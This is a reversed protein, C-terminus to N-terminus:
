AARASKYRRVADRNCARCQRRGRGRYTNAEDFAHGNSCAVKRANIAPQSLGRMVNELATVAELHDPNVCRRNRCLHDLTLGSPIPGKVLRYAERHAKTERGPEGPHPNLYGYGEPHIWGTWEWCGSPVKEVRLWFTRGTIRANSM